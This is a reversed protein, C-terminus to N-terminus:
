RTVEDPDVHEPWCLPCFQQACGACYRVDEIDYVFGCEACAPDDDDPHIM